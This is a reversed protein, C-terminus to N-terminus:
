ECHQNLETYWKIAKTEISKIFDHKASNYESGNQWDLTALHNKLQQYENKIEIQTKLYDRFAIHRKWHFSNHELVHIHALKFEDIELPITDNEGFVKPFASNVIKKKLKVFFRRYPMTTNFKEYYIYDNNQLPEIVLNLQDMNSVGIMIDIIPKASLGVVATSGIHEIFPNLSHLQTYLEFEIDKYENMWNPDYEKIQIKM